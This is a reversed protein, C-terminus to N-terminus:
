PEDRESCDIEFDECVIDPMLPRFLEGLMMTEFDMVVNVTPESGYIKGIMRRNPEVRKYAVRLLTHFSDKCIWDVLRLIDRQDM